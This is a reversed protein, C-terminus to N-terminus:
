ANYSGTPVGSYTAQPATSAPRPVLRGVQLLTGIAGLTGAQSAADADSLSALIGADLRRQTVAGARREYAASLEVRRANDVLSALPTGTLALGSQATEAEVGGLLGSGQEYIQRVRYDTQYATETKELRIQEARQQAAAAAADGAAYQGYASVGLGAVSTALGAIAITELGM